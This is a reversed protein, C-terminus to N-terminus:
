TRMADGGVCGRVCTRVCEQGCSSVIKDNYPACKATNVRSVNLAPECTSYSAVVCAYAFACAFACSRVHSGAKVHPVLM